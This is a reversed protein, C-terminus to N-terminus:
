SSSAAECEKRLFSNEAVAPPLKGTKFNCDPGNNWDENSVNTVEFSPPMEEDNLLTTNMSAVLVPNESTGPVSCADAVVRVRNAAIESIWMSPEASPVLLNTPYM